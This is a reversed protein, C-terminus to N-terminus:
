VPVCQFSILWCRDSHRVLLFFSSFFINNCLCKGILRAPQQRNLVSYGGHSEDPRQTFSTAYCCYFGIKKISIYHPLPIRLVFSLRLNSFHSFQLLSFGSACEQHFLMCVYVFLSSVFVCFPLQFDDCFTM